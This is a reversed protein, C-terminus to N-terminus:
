TTDVIANKRKETIKEIEVKACEICCIWKVSPRVNKLVCVYTQCPEHCVSCIKIKSCEIGM